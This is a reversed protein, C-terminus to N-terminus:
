RAPGRKLHKDLFEVVTRQIKPGGFGHGAEPVPQLISTVGAQQLAAHLLESQGIPVVHDEEGHMILFPPDDESVYAIPNAKAAKDLNELLPGGLLLSEPSDPADHDLVSQSGAQKSIVSFDTPGFFDVVAQVRSSQEGHPGVDFAETDGTTGLLAVLHGGASAGWVGLRKADYGFQDAHARLWRVAAKCDELQAPFPAHQSLRYNISAVAYGKSLLPLAPPREKSGGRWAGGHVWVVLPWDSGEAPLYLDLQQRPHGDPVYPRDRVAPTPEAAEREPPQARSSPSAHQVLFLTTFVLALRLHFSDM